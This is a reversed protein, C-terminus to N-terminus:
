RRGARALASGVYPAVGGRMADVVLRSWDEATLSACLQRVDYLWILRDSNAHHATRHIAALLLAHVSCPGWANPGLEPIPIREATMEEFTLAGAFARPNAVRRHVDLAHRAGAGDDRWHHFQTFAVDGTVHALPQYGLSELVLRTTAADREAILLDTDTRPRLEPTGYHTWQLHAGKIVLPTVGSRGLADLAARLERVRLMVLAAEAPAARNLAEIGHGGGQRRAEAALLPLVGHAIAADLLDTWARGPPLAEGRLIRALDATALEQPM